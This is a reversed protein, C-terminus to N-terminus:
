IEKLVQRELRTFTFIGIALIVLIVAGSGMVPAWVLEDGFFTARALVLMGVTPNFNYATELEPPVNNVSYIIPSLYFLLRMMIPIIRDVDRILVNLPALCLGIGLLLTTCYIMALPLYVIGFGPLKRYGIAFIAVVPLSLVYIVGNSLITRVVWLERPVNTSRVMASQTRLSRACGPVSSQFWAWLLQGTVLYLIYPDYGIDRNTIVKTFIFWYVVSMLLPDLVTWLYGLASGAYRVKLDRSILLKLIRRYAVVRKVRGWVSISSSSTSFGESRGRLSVSTM